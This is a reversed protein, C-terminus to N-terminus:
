PGNTEQLQEGCVCVCQQPTHAERESACAGPLSSIYCDCKSRPCPFLPEGMNLATCLLMGLSASTWWPQYMSFAPMCTSLQLLPHPSAWIALAGACRPKCSEWRASASCLFYLPSLAASPTEGSALGVTVAPAPADWQVGWGSCDRPQGLECCSVRLLWRTM